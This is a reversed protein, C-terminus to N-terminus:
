NLTIEVRRNEARGASTNNTSIPKDPGIAIVNARAAVLGNDVLYDKIFEAREKSKEINTNRNGRNDSHGSIDLKSNPVNKIYYILDGIDKRQEPSLTPHDNATDFQIVIPNGQFKTKLEEFPLGTNPKEIINFTIPGRLINDGEGLFVMDSEEQGDIALQADGIGKNSFLRKVHSARALGLNEMTTNDSNEDDTYWGTIQLAKTPNAKLFDVAKDIVGTVETAIPTIYEVGSRKFNIHADETEAIVNDGDTLALASKHSADVSSGATAWDHCGVGICIWIVLLLLLFLIRKDM